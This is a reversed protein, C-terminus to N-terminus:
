WPVQGPTEVPMPASVDGKTWHPTSAKSDSHLLGPAGLFARMRVHQASHDLAPAEAYFSANLQTNAILYRRFRQFLPVDVPDPNTWFTAMPGSHVLGDIAYICEGMTFVPKHHHLAQLGTTSNVTVTGRSHKLLTPLHLDHVYRIRQALGLRQAIAAIHVSFDRYARDMPHHKIVLWHDAPAHEAFSEMVEDIVAEMGPYSSHRLIQMDNHVQLPLLFWRNSREPSILEKMIQTDAPRNLVKRISGWLWKSTETWPTMVRHYVAHPFRWHMAAMALGYTAAILAMRHFKQGAPVSKKVPPLTRASLGDYFARERPISSYANVGGIELTVHNPRMYGEEYVFLRLGMQNAIKAVPLHIPRDQGFLVIASIQHKTVFARLWNVWEHPPGNFAFANSERYFIEDGGNFNIKFVEQGHEVLYRALRGFFPGMPGQLLLTRRHELLATFSTPHPM